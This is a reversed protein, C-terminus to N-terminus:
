KHLRNKRRLINRPGTNCVRQRFERRALSLQQSISSCYWEVQFTLRELQAHTARDFLDVVKKEELMQYDRWLSSCNTSMMIKADRTLIERKNLDKDDWVCEYFSMDGSFILLKRVETFFSHARLAALCMSINDNILERAKLTRTVAHGRLTRAVMHIVMDGTVPKRNEVHLDQILYKLESESDLDNLRRPIAIDQQHEKQDSSSTRQASM